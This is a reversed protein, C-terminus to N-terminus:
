HIWKVSLDSLFYSVEVTPHSRKFEFLNELKLLAAKRDAANKNALAGRISNDFSISELLVKERIKNRENETPAQQIEELSAFSHVAM